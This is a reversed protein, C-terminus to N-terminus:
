SQDLCVVYLFKILFDFKKILVFFEICIKILLGCKMKPIQMCVHIMFYLNSKFLFKDKLFTMVICIVGLNKLVNCHIRM